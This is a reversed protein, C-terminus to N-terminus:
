PRRYHDFDQLKTVLNIKEPGYLYACYSLAGASLQDSLLELDRARCNTVMIDLLM